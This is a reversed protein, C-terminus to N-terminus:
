ARARRARPTCRRRTRALFAKARERVRSPTPTSGACEPRRSGSRAARARCDPVLVKVLDDYTRTVPANRAALAARVAQIEGQKAEVVVEVRSAAVDVHSTRASQLAVALGKARFDHVVRDLRSDLNRVARNDVRRPQSSRTGDVVALAQAGGLGGLALAGVVLVFLRCMTSGRM